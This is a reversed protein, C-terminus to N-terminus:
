EIGTGSFVTVFVAPILLGSMQLAERTNRELGHSSLRAAGRVHILSTADGSPMIAHVVVDEVAAWSFSPARYEAPRVGPRGKVRWLLAHPLDDTVWFGSCYRKGTLEEM